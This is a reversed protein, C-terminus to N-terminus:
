HLSRRCGSTCGRDGDGDLHAIRLRPLVIIITTSGRLVVLVVLVPRGKIM